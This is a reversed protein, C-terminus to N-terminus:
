RHLDDQSRGGKLFLNEPRACLDEALVALHDDGAGDDVIVM